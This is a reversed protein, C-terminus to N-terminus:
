YRIEFLNFQGKYNSWVINVSEVQAARSGVKLNAALRELANRSGEAQVEVENGSNLNRVFGKLGTESAKQQVFARFNVGQVRGKVIARFGSSAGNHPEFAGSIESM